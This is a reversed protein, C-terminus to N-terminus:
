GEIHFHVVTLMTEVSYALGELVDHRLSAPRRVYRVDRKPHIAHLDCGLDDYLVELLKCLLTEEAPARGPEQPEM